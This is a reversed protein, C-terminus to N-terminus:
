LAISVRRRCPMLYAPWATSAKPTDTAEARVEPAVVCIPVLTCYFVFSVIHTAFLRTGFFFVNLYLKMLFPIQSLPWHYSVRLSTSSRAPNHVACPSVHPLAPSPAPLTSVDSEWVQMM